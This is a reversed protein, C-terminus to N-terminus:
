ARGGSKQVLADALATLRDVFRSLWPCTPWGALAIGDVLTNRFQIVAFHHLHNVHRALFSLFFWGRNESKGALGAVHDPKQTKNM